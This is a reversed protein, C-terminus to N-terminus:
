LERVRQFCAYINLYMNMKRLFLKTVKMLNKLPDNVFLPPGPRLCLLGIGAQM